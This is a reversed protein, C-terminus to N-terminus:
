LGPLNIYPLVISVFERVKRWSPLQERTGEEAEAMNDLGGSLASCAMACKKSHCLGVRCGQSFINCWETETYHHRHLHPPTSSPSVLLWAGEWCSTLDMVAPMISFMLPVDIQTLFDRMLTRIETDFCDNEVWEVRFIYCVLSPYLNISYLEKLPLYCKPKLLPGVTSLTTEWQETAITHLHM